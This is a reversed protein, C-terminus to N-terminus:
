GGAPPRLTAGQSPHRCRRVFSGRVPRHCGGAGSRVTFASAVEVLEAAPEPESNAPGPRAQARAVCFSRFVFQRNARAPWWGSVRWRKGPQRRSAGALGSGLWASTRHGNWELVGTAGGDAYVLAAVKDKLVLPLVLVQENDPAGFDKVFKRGMEAINGPTAVRNQYAHAVPGASIDLAFDKVLDDDRFRPWQWGSAAGAKVVFLAIRAATRAAPTSCPGCFKRRPPDRQINAVAHVLASSDAGTVSHAARFRREGAPMAELVQQVIQSQLQPM